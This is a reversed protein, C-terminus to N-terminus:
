ATAEKPNGCTVGVLAAQPLGDAVARGVRGWGCIWTHDRFGEIRRNMRRRGAFKRLQDEVAAQVTLTVAYLVTSVWAVIIVVTFPSTWGSPELLERYGVTTVTIITMYLVDGWGLGFLPYGIAGVVAVTGVLAVSFRLRAITSM